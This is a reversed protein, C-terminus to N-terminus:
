GSSERAENLPEPLFLGTFDEWVSRGGLHISQTRVKCMVSTFSYSLPQRLDGSSHLFFANQTVFGDWYEAGVRHRAIGQGRHGKVRLEGTGDSPDGM